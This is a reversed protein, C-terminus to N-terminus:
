YHTARQKQDLLKLEIVAQAVGMAQWAHGSVGYLPGQAKVTGVAVAKEGGHIEMLHAKVMADRKARASIGLASLVQRRYLLTLEFKLHHCMETIRGVIETTLMVDTSSPGASTRECAVVANIEEVSFSYLFMRVRDLTAESEAYAVRGEVQSYIVLGSCSPGPDIGIVYPTLQRGLAQVVDYPKPPQGKM